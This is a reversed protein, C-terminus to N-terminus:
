GIKLRATAVSTPAVMVCIPFFESSAVSEFTFPRPALAALLSVYFIRSFSWPLSPWLFLDIYYIEGPLSGASERVLDSLRRVIIEKGNIKNQGEILRDDHCM